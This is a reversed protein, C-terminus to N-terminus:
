NHQRVEAGIKRALHGVAELELRFVSRGDDAANRLEVRVSRRWSVPGSRDLLWRTVFLIPLNMIPSRRLPQDTVRRDASTRIVPQM